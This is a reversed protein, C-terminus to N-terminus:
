PTARGERERDVPLAHWARLIEEKSRQPLDFYDDFVPETDDVAEHEYRRGIILLVLGLIGILGGVGIGIWWGIADGAAFSYRTAREIAQPLQAASVGIILPSAFLCFIGVRGGETLRIRTRARWRM